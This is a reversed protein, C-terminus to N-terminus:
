GFLEYCGVHVGGLLVIPVNVDIQTIFPAVFAISFDIKGAVFASYIDLGVDVYQVDAFGEGKLLEEAVYQPAICIGPIRGLRVTTAEPPAEQALSPRAGVFGAAGASSLTTLFGRRSQMMKM